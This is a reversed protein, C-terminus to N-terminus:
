QCIDASYAPDNGLDLVINTDSDDLDCVALPIINVPNRALNLYSLNSLKSLSTPLSTIMNVSLNCLELSSLDGFENPISPLENQALNLLRLKKLQIIENPLSNIRNGNLLLEDLNKLKSIEKPISTLQNTNFSLQELKFLNGIEPPISSVQNNYCELSILNCLLGIEPPIIKINVERLYLARVKANIPVVGKWTNMSKDNFDWNLTNNPNADYLIKLIDYDELDTEPDCVCKETILIEQPFAPLNHPDIYIRNSGFCNDCSSSGIAPIDSPAYSINKGGVTIKEEFPKLQPFTKMVDSLQYIDPTCLIYKCIDPTITVEPINDLGHILTYRAKIESSIPKVALYDFGTTLSAYITKNAYDIKSNIKEIKNNPQTIKFIAVDNVKGLKQIVEEFNIKTKQDMDANVNFAVLENELSLFRDTLEQNIKLKNSCSSFLFPLLVILYLITKVIPQFIASRM